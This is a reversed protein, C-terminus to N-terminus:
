LLFTKILFNFSVHRGSVLEPGKKIKFSDETFLFRLLDTHQYMDIVLLKSWFNWKGNSATSLEKCVCFLRTKQWTARKTSNKSLITEKTIHCLSALNLQYVTNVEWTLNKNRTKRKPKISKIKKLVFHAKSTLYLFFMNGLKM